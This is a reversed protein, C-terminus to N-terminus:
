RVMESIKLAAELEEVNTGGMTFRNRRTHREDEAEKLSLAIAIRMAREDEDEIEDSETPLEAIGVPLSNPPPPPPSQPLPPPSQPLQLPSQLTPSAVISSSNSSSLPPSRPDPPLQVPTHPFRAARARRSIWDNVDDPSSPYMSDESISPTSSGTRTHGKDSFALLNNNGISGTSTRSRRTSRRGRINQTEQAM